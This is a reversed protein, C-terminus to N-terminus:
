CICLRAAAMAAKLHYGKGKIKRILGEAEERVSLHFISREAARVADDDMGANHFSAAPGTVTQHGEEAGQNIWNKITQITEDPLPGGGRPMQAGVSQRGELKIIIYSIEADGPNVLMYDPENLSKVEVTESYAKEPTLVLGGGGSEDHCRICHDKFVPVMDEAFHPIEVADTGSVRFAAALFATLIFVCSIFLTVNKLNKKRM